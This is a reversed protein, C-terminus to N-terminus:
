HSGDPQIRNIAYRRFTYRWCRQRSYHLAFKRAAGPIVSEPLQDGPGIVAIKGESTGVNFLSADGKRPTAWSYSLGNWTIHQLTAAIMDGPAMGASSNTLGNAKLVAAQPANDVTM